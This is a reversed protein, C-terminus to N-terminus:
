LSYVDSSESATASDLYDDDDEPAVLDTASSLDWVM